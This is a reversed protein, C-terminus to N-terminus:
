DASGLSKYSLGQKVKPFRVVFRTNACRSDLYLDGGHERAVRLGISLGLGTGKGPDKTTFFPLMIQDRIDSPIGVGSDVIALEVFDESEQTEIQIWKEPANEVADMANALLHLCLQSIQSPRAKIASEGAQFNLRFQVGDTEAKTRLLELTGLVADRAHIMEFSEDDGDKALM